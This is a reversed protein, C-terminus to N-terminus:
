VNERARPDGFAAGVPLARLTSHLVQFHPRGQADPGRFVLTAAAANPVVRAVMQVFATTRRVPVDADGDQPVVLVARGRFRPLHSQLESELSALHADDDGATVGLLVIPPVAEDRRGLVRLLAGDPAPSASKPAPAAAAAPADSAPADPAPADPQAPPAEAAPAAAPEPKPEPHLQVADGDGNDLLVKSAKKDRLAALLAVVGAHEADAGPWAITATAGVLVGLSKLREPLERELMRVDMAADGTSEIAVRADRGVKEASEILPPHLQLPQPGDLVVRSAGQELAYDAVLAAAPSSGITVSQLAIEIGELERAVARRQQEEDRDDVVITIKVGGDVEAVALMPPLLLDLQGGEAVELRMAGVEAVATCLGNVLTRSLAFEGVIDIRVAKGRLADLQPPLRRDIARQLERPKGVESDVHITHVDGDVGFSVPEPVFPERLDGGVTCSLRKPALAGMAADLCALAEADLAFDQPWDVVVDKGQTETHHESCEREFAALVAARSRGNTDLRLTVEKGPVVRILPPWVIDTDDAGGVEILKVGANKAFDVCFAQVAASERAFQFRVNKGDLEGEHNPLVLSLADVTTADDGTLSIAITVKNGSVSCQVRQEIDRDFLVRAGIAASRVGAERLTMTLADRMTADPRAGGRFQLVYRRGDAGETLKGMHPAMAVPLDDADCTGTDVQVNHVGDQEVVEVEVTPLTGEYVREDGFGRRVVISLPKCDRFTEAVQDKIASGILAEGAFLVLVKQFRLDAAHQGAIRKMPADIAEAVEKKPMDPVDITVVVDFEDDDSKGCSAKVPGEDEDLAELTPLEEDDGELAELVPLDDIPELEPLEDEIEDRAPRGPRKRPLGHGHKTM